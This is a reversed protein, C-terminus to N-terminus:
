EKIKLFRPTPDPRLELGAATQQKIWQLIPASVERETEWVLTHNALSVLDDNGEAVYDITGVIYDKEPDMEEGNIEVKLLSGSENSFVRINGSVAEGGKMAAVRMAEIIDKGKVRIIVFRNSFPYTSLILGETVDGAPIHHRIGGVNMISMDVPPIRLGEKRLSDTLTRAYWLGFDATMNPLAGLRTKPLEYAARGVVINNVSDVKERYPLIFAKMSQDLKKEPFRDTVPILEYEWDEGGMGTAKDTDLTLKGLVRGQKGTQVVRVPKGNKAPILSPNIEPHLPDILTHTHGGIIVDIDTSNRALDVDTPKDNVKDYGIHTVAVVYDCGLENKLKGAIENATPIVELFNVDINKQAIISTPDINLGFFGIKRSGIEKIIYPRFIGELSTGTFDYNASLPTGKTTSYYKTLEEMGNDFEHNGLIRIDYGMFDMLPYEVAGGFYKFYLTGQVVDGADVTIVNKEVNKVSDIIAKRQLVGGTGDELPDITSHTDNSHLIVVKEANVSLMFAVSGIISLMAKIINSLKM